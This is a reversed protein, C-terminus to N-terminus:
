CLDQVPIGQLLLLEEGVPVARNTVYPVGLTDSVSVSWATSSLLAVHSKYQRYYHCKLCRNGHRGMTDRDVSSISELGNNQLHVLGVQAMLLTNIDM